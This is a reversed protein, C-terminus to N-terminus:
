LVYWTTGIETSPLTEVRREETCKPLIVNKYLVLVKLAGRTKGKKQIVKGPYFRQTKDKHNWLVMVEMDKRLGTLLMLAQTAEQESANM